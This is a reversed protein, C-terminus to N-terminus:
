TWLHNFHQEIRNDIDDRVRRYYELKQERNGEHVSPDEVDWMEVKAGTRSATGQVAKYASETFTVILDWPQMALYGISKPEHNLLDIGKEGMVAIVFGDLIGEEIGGSSIIIGDKETNDAIGIKDQLLAAAMPSRISNMACCFLIRKM